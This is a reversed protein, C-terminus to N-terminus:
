VVCDCVVWGLVGVVVLLEFYEGCVVIYVVFVSGWGVVMGCLVSVKVGIWVDFGICV